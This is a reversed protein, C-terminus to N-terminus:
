PGLDESDPMDPRRSVPSQGDPGLLAVLTRELASLNTEFDGREKVLRRNLNRTAEPDLALAREIADAVAPPDIATLVGNIGEDIWARNASIDSVVPIPGLAMAELLAVSAGDSRAISVYVDAGALARELEASPRHGHFTVSEAIGLAVAQAALAPRATGDGYISCAWGIGRANLLALGELLVDFCYLPTLPRATVIRVQGGAVRDARVEMGIAALRDTEVGYQFVDVRKQDGALDHVARRMQESPVTVLEAARLVRTVILRMIPNRPSLLIDSGHGTVVLPRIGAYLGLLGYSTAAHAHVLDPGIRRLVKRAARLRFLYGIRGFRPAGLDHVEYRTAGTGHPERGCTVIHVEHGADEFYGAWRPTHVSGYWALFAIRMGM